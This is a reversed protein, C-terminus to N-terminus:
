SSQDISETMEGTLRYDGSYLKVWFQEPTNHDLDFTPYIVSAEFGLQVAQSYRQSLL